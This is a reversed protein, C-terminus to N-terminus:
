WMREDRERLELLNNRRGFASVREFQDVTGAARQGLVARLRESVEAPGMEKTGCGRAQTSLECGDVAYERGRVVCALRSWRARCIVVEILEVERPSACRHTRREITLSTQRPSTLRIHMRKTLGLAPVKYPFLM